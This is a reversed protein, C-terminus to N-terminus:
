NLAAMIHDIDKFNLDDVLMRVRVGRDAAYLAAALLLKGSNDENAIYYQMDLTKTAACALAILAQLADTGTPLLRPGTEGPHQRELPAIAASAHHRPRIRDRTPPHRLRKPGTARDHGRNGHTQATDSHANDSAPARSEAARPTRHHM